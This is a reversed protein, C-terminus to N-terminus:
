IGFFDFKKKIKKIVDLGHPDFASMNGCNYNNSRGGARLLFSLNRWFILACKMFDGAANNIQWPIMALSESLSLRHRDWNGICGPALLLLRCSINWSCISPSFINYHSQFIQLCYAWRPSSCSLTSYLYHPPTSCNERFGSFVSFLLPFSLAIYLCFFLLSISLFIENACTSQNVLLFKQM